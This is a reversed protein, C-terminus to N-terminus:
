HMAADQLAFRSLYSYLVRGDASLSGTELIKKKQQESTLHHALHLIM